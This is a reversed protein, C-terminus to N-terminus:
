DANLSNTRTLKLEVEARSELGMKRLVISVLNKISQERLGISEAIMRNSM